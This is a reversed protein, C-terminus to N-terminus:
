GVLLPRRTQITQECVFAVSNLITRARQGDRELAEEELGKNGSFPPMLNRLFM